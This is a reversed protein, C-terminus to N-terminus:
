IPRAFGKFREIQVYENKGQAAAKM